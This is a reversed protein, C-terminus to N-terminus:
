MQCSDFTGFYWIAWQNKQSRSAAENRSWIDFHKWSKNVTENWSKTLGQSRKNTFYKPVSMSYTQWGSLRKPDVKMTESVVCVVRVCVLGCRESNAPRSTAPKFLSIREFCLYLLYVLGVSFPTFLDFTKCVFHGGPPSLSVSNSLRSQFPLFSIFKM